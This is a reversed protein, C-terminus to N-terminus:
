RKLPPRRGRDAELKLAPTLAIGAGCLLEACRGVDFRYYSDRGDASSRRSSVLGSKRLEALHYSILNQPKGLRAVLEGVKLDSTALERLLLWRQEDGMLRLVDPMSPNITASLM